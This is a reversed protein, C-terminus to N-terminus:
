IKTLRRQNARVRRRYHAIMEASAAAPTAGLGGSLAKRQLALGADIKETVIRRAEAQAAPTWSALKLTRLGIVSCAELSLSLTDM